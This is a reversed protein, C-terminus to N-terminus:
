ACTLGSGRNLIEDELKSATPLLRPEAKAEFVEVLQVLCPVPGRVSSCAGGASGTPSVVKRSIM